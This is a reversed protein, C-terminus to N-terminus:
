SLRAALFDRALNLCVQKRYEASVRGRIPQIAKDYAAIWRDVQAQAESLPLGILMADIEPRRVVVDEVAGFACALHEIVGDRAAFLGAFSVRSIALAKRGGVKEFAFDDLWQTPMLIEVLLEDPQRLTKGRGIFFEKIPVM